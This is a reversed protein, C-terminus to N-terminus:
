ELCGTIKMGCKSPVNYVLSGDRGPGRFGLLLAVRASYM